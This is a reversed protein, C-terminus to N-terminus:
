MEKMSASITMLHLPTSATTTRPHYRLALPRVSRKDLHLM